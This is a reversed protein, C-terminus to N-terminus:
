AARPLPAEGADDDSRYPRGGSGGSKWIEVSAIPIVMRELTEERPATEAAVEVAVEAGQDLAEANAAEDIAAPLVGVQCALRCEAGPEIVVLRANLSGRARGRRQILITGDSHLRGDMEGQVLVHRGKIGGIARGTRSIVVDGEAWLTGEFHGHIEVAGARLIPFLRPPM